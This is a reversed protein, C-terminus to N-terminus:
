VAKSATHSAAVHQQATRRELEATTGAARQALEVARRMEIDSLNLEAERIAVDAEARGIVAIARQVSAKAAALQARMEATDLRAIIAGKQVVDGEKVNMEAVRGPLKAAIDVREVELRGNAIALGAPVRTASYSNLALYAGGALALGAFVALTAPARMM